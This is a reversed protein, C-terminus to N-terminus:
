HNYNDLQNVGEQKCILAPRTVAWSGQYQDTVMLKAEKGQETWNIEERQKSYGKAERRREPFSGGRAMCDFERDCVVQAM